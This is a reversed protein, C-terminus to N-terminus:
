ALDKKREEEIEDRLIGFVLVDWARGDRFGAQRLVGEQRFGHKRLSNISLHNYEYVKAEIRRLDLADVGYYSILKSAEVGFGRRLARRDTIITELFAYGELLHINYLRVLGVPATWGENAVIVLILQTPDALCADYFSTDREYVFRYSHLLESGVLRDLVPDDAWAALHDLDGRTLTRLSVRPGRAVVIAGDAAEDPVVRGPGGAPRPLRRIV